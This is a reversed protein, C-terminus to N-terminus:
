NTVSDIIARFQEAMRPGAGDDKHKFFVFVDNWGTEQIVSAWRLLDEDTYDPRRLRLYGWDTTKVVPVIEDTSNDAVCLACNASELLDYIERDFWSEHRFEFAARIGNPVLPLFKKLRDSNKRFNPPLQFLVAGLKPHLDKIINCMYEMVDGANLLRKFHTIRRSAKLAFKFGDPTQNSWMQLVDPKPLRYFTNNIEVSPLRTGYFELMESPKIDSPYFPGKWEQYSFGSTGVLLNM